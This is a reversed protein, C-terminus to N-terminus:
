TLNELSMRMATTLAYLLESTSLRSLRTWIRTLPHHAGLMVHLLQAIFRVIIIGAERNRFPLIFTIHLLAFVLAFDQDLIIGQLQNLCLNILRVGNAARDDGLWNAAVRMREYWEVLREYAPQGNRGVLQGFSNPKPDLIGADVGGHIYTRILHVIEEPLQVDPSGNLNDPVSMSLALDAPPLRCVVGHEQTFEFVGQSIRSQLEPHLRLYRGVEEWDVPDHERFVLVARSHGTQDDSVKWMRVSDTNRRNKGADWKKIRTKFMKQTAHFGHKYLMIAMVEKLTKNEDRYLRTILAKHREWDRDSAYGQQRSVGLSSTLAPRM